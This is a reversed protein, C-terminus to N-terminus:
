VKVHFVFLEDDADGIFELNLPMTVRGNRDGPEVDGSLRVKPGCVTIRGYPDAPAGVSAFLSVLRDSNLTENIWDLRGTGPLIHEPDIRGVIKRGTIRASVFGNVNAVSPRLDVSNGFDITCETALPTTVTPTAAYNSLTLGMGQVVRPASTYPTVGSLFGASIPSFGGGQFVPIGTFETNLLMPEGAKFSLGGTGRAAFIRHLQGGLRREVTYAPSAISVTGNFVESQPRYVFGVPANKDAIGPAIVTFSQTPEGALSTFADAALVDTAATLVHAYVFGATVGAVLLRKTGGATQVVFGPYVTPTGTVAIAYIAGPLYTGPSPPLVFGMGMLTRPWLAAAPTGVMEETWSIMGQHQSPLNAQPTLTGRQLGREYRAASIRNSVDKRNGAYDAAALTAVAAEAADIDAGTQEKLGVQTTYTNMGGGM